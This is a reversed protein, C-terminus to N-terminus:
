NSETLQGLHDAMQKVVPKHKPCCRFHYICLPSMLILTELNVEEGQRGSIQLFFVAVNLVSMM